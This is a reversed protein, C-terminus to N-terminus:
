ICTYDVHASTNSKKKLVNKTNSLLKNMTYTDNNEIRKIIKQKWIIIIIIIMAPM